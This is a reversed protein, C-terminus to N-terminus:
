NLLVISWFLGRVGGLLIWWSFVRMIINFQNRLYSPLISHFSQKSVVASYNPSPSRLASLNVKEKCKSITYSLVCSQIVVSPGIWESQSVTFWLNSFTVFVLNWAIVKYILYGNKSFHLCVFTKPGMLNLSNGDNM